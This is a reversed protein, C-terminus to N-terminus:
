QTTNHKTTYSVKLHHLNEAELEAIIEPFLPTADKFSDESKVIKTVFAVDDIKFPKSPTSSSSSVLLLLLLLLLHLSQHWHYFKSQQM